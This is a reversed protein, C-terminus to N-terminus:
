EPADGSSGPARGPTRERAHFEDERREPERGSEEACAGVVVERAGLASRAVTPAVVLQALAARRVVGFAVVPAAPALVATM